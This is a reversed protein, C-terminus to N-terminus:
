VGLDVFSTVVELDSIDSFLWTQECYDDEPSIVIKSTKKGTLKLVLGQKIEGTEDVTFKVIDGVSVFDDEQLMVSSYPPRALIIM